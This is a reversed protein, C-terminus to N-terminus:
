PQNELCVVQPPNGRGTGAVAGVAEGIAWTWLLLALQPLAAFWLSLPERHSSLSRVIRSLLLAPVAPALAVRALRLCRGSQRARDQGFKRAHAFRHRLTAAFPVAGQFTVVAAPADAITAGAARLERHVVVEWFGDSWAHRVRELQDRRYLANDGAPEFRDSAPVPPLYRAYRLLYLARDLPRLRAAPAIPGGVGAAGENHLRAKLAALWGSCPVMQATSFAVLDTTTAALGAAWLEPALSGPSGRVVHVRPLLREVADATGDRSADALVVVDHPGAAELFAAASAEVTSRADIAALIIATNPRPASM